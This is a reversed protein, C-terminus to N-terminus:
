SQATGPGGQGAAQAPGFARAVLGQYGQVATRQMYLTLGRLGGLEEGGGARGPGGHISQPLVAGPGLAQGVVKEGGIWVRGHWPALGLTVREAFERDDTYVSAVLSGGGRNCLAVAEDASGDYELLTACPGFVELSHLVAAGVDKARLLTPAVFYGQPAAKQPGGTIPEAVQLLQQMGRQVDALAEASALPGM